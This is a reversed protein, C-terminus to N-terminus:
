GTSKSVNIPNINYIVIQVKRVSNVLIYGLDNEENLNQIFDYQNITTTRRSEKEYKVISFKLNRDYVFIPIKFSTLNTRLTLTPLSEFYNDVNRIRTSDTENVREELYKERKFELGFLTKVLKLDSMNSTPYLILVSEKLDRLEFYNKAANSLEIENVVLPFKFTNMFDVSKVIKSVNEESSILFKLQNQNYNLSGIQSKEIKFDMESVINEKM